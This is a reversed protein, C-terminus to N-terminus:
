PEVPAEVPAEVPMTRRMLSTTRTSAWARDNVQRWREDATRARHAAMAADASAATQHVSQVWGNLTVVEVATV